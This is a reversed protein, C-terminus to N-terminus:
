ITSTPTASAAAPGTDGRRSSNKAPAASSAQMYGAFLPLRIFAHQLLDHLNEPTFLLPNGDEDEIGKWGIVVEKLLALDNEDGLEKFRAHGILKYSVTIPKYVVDGGDTPVALDVPWQVRPIKQFKFM